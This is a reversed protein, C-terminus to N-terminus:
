KALLKQWEIVAQDYVERVYAPERLQAIDLGHLYISRKDFAYLAYSASSPADLVRITQPDAGEVIRGRYYVHNKDKAYYGRGCAGIDKKVLVDFSAEDVQALQQEFWFIGKSTRFFGCDLHELSASGITQIIQLTSPFSGGSTQPPPARYIFNTDALRCGDSTSVYHFTSTDAIDMRIAVEVRLAFQNNSNKESLDYSGGGLHYVGTNDKAFDCGLFTFSAPDFSEPLADRVREKLQLLCGRRV